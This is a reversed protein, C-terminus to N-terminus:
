RPTAGGPGPQGQGSQDLNPNTVPPYLVGPPPGSPPTVVGPRAAAGASGFPNGPDPPPPPPPLSPTPPRAEAEAPDDSLLDDDPADQAEAEASATGAESRGDGVAAQPLPVSLPAGPIARRFPALDARAAAAPSQAQPASSVPVVLIQEFASSGPSGARRAFLMYGGAERLLIDLAQRETVDRLLLTVPTAGVKEANVVRVGGVRTWEALIQRITAGRADLTVGGDRIDLSVHQAGAQATWLFAALGVSL